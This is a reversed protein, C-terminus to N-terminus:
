STVTLTTSTFSYGYKTTTGALKVSSSSDTYGVVTVDCYELTDTVVENCGNTDDHVVLAFYMMTYSSSMPFLLANTTVADDM